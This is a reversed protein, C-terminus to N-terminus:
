MIHDNVSDYESQWEKFKKLYHGLLVLHWALKSYCIVLCIVVAVKKKKKKSLNSFHLRKRLYTCTNPEKLSPKTYKFSQVKFPYHTHLKLINGQVVKVCNIKDCTLKGEYSLIDM